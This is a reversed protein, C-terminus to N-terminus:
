CILNEGKITEAIARANLGCKDLMYRYSGAKMFADPLGIKVVRPPNKYSAVIDSVITGLGGCVTHEELTVIPTHKETLTRILEEDIPKITHINYVSASIGSKELVKAARIGEYLMTGTALIALDTGERHQIAKGLTLTYDTKYVCPNAEIGTLRLYAPGDNSCLLETMKATEVCDAPSYIQMNPISRMLSFEELGFHTNGCVGMGVGSAIGVVTVNLNMYGLYTRIMEYCRMSAFPAFSVAFVKYGNQALGAAVGIMNQEAIGVNLFQDPFKEAFENLGASSAVDAVLVMLEPHEAALETLVVGFTKRSGIRSWQLATKQDIIM